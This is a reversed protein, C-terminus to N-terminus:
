KNIEIEAAQIRNDFDNLITLLDQSNLTFNQTELNNAQINRVNNAINQSKIKLYGKIDYATNAYQNDNQDYLRFLKHSKEIIPFYVTDPDEFIETIIIGGIPTFNADTQSLYYTSGLQIPGSYAQDFPIANNEFANRICGNFTKDVMNIPKTFIFVDADARDIYADITPPYNATNWLAHTGQPTGVLAIPEFRCKFTKGFYNQYKSKFEDYKGDLNNDPLQAGTSEIDIYNEAPVTGITTYNDYIRYELTGIPTTFERPTFISVESPVKYGIYNMVIGTYIGHPAVQYVAKVIQTLETPTTNRIKGETTPSLFFVDAGGGAGTSGAPVDEISITPLDISGYIVVNKSADPNVSEVIGFVEANVPNDAISKTYVDNIADYRIVDGATVGGVCSADSIQVLLRSGGNNGDIFTTTSSFTSTRTTM